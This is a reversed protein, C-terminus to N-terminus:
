QNNDRFLQDYYEYIEKVVEKNSYHKVSEATQEKLRIRFEKDIILRETKQVLDNLNDKQFFLGNVNDQIYDKKGGVSSAIVPTKAYLSEVGVLGFPEICSPFIFLDFRYFYPILKIYPLSEIVDIPLKKANIYEKIENMLDGNGIMVGKVPHKQYLAEICKIFLFPRKVETIGGVFGLIIQDKQYEEDSRTAEFANFASFDVGCSRTKVKDEPLNFYTLFNEKMDRNVALVLDCYNFLKKVWKKDFRKEIQRIGHSTAILPKKRFFKYLAGNIVPLFFRHAHVLDYQRFLYPVFCIMQLGWQITRWFFSRKTQANKFIRFFPNYYVDYKIKHDLKKLEEVQEKVFIGTYVNKATPYGDAIILIKQLSKM